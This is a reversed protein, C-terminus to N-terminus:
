YVTLQKQEEPRLPNARLDRVVRAPNGVAVCYDPVDRTVVAGAGVVANRGIRVGDLIIAGGGIWAGDAVSIGQVTIGQVSIPRGTDAYLHNVALMQVLPALFVDDGITIGGQGRLVCAEGILSRAGISIGSHPLDRFNYVHLIANKMVFSEAGISIGAPCAHLYVGHDLYAGRGLRVNGAFRIRVGDEIAAAGDMRLISRYAVTRLGIGVVSPVWGLAAQVVQEWVYRGLSAAQRAIYLQLQAIM